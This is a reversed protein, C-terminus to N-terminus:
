AGEVLIANSVDLKSEDAWREIFRHQARFIRQNSVRRAEVVARRPVDVRVTVRGTERDARRIRLSWISTTGSRCAQAYSAVCHHMARGEAFLEHFCLLESLEWSEQLREESFSSVGPLPEWRADGPTARLRFAVSHRSTVRRETAHHAARRENPEDLHV